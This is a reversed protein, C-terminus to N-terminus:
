GDAPDEEEELRPPLLIVGTDAETLEPLGLGRHLSEIRAERERRELDTIEGRIAQLEKLASTLQKLGGRDVTGGPTMDRYEETTEIGDDKTKVKRVTCNLDLEGIAKALKGLLMDALAEVTYTEQQQQQM